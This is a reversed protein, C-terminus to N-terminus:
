KKIRIEELTTLNFISIQDNQRAFKIAKEIEHVEFVKVSDFYFKNNEFNLWGGVKKDNQLAHQIVNKLSEIGFSNQTEKYAVVIGNKVVEFNEINLTFGYPNNLSYEWVRITLKEM